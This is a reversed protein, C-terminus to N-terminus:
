DVWEDIQAAVDKRLILGVTRWANKSGVLWPEPFASAGAVPALGMATMAAAAAAEGIGKASTEFALPAPNAATLWTRELGIVAKHAMQADLLMRSIVTGSWLKADPQPWLVDARSLLATTANAVDAPSAVTRTELTIAQEKAAADLAAWWGAETDSPSKLIGLISLRPLLTKLKSLGRAPDVRLSLGIANTRGSIASVDTVDAYILPITTFERAAAVFARDGLAFVANITLDRIGDALFAAADIEPGLEYSIRTAGETREKFVTTITTARESAGSTLVLLVPREARALRPALLSATLGGIVARRSLGPKM